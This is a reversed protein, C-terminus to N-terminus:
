AVARPTVELRSGLDTGICTWGERERRSFLDLRPGPAFAEVIRYFEEPKESHRWAQAEFVTRTNANSRKPRGRVAVICTEHEARLHHGMGFWRKGTRTKKVWVLETKPVFGWAQAVRYAEPVQSAVRWLFLYADEAIEPLALNCVDDVSMVEYHKEAGRGPGPLKDDFSWAPDAVVCAFPSGQPPSM